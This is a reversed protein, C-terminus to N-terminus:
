QLNVISENHSNATVITLVTPWQQNVWIVLCFHPNSSKLVILIEKCLPIYGTKNSIITLMVHTHEQKCKVLAFYIAKVSVPLTTMLFTHLNNYVMTKDTTFLSAFCTKITVPNNNCLKKKLTNRNSFVSIFVKEQLYYQVTIFNLKYLFM